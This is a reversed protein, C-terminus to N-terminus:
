CGFDDDGDEKRKLALAMDYILRMDDPSIDRTADFLARLDTNDFIEQAIKATKEDVYYAPKDEILETVPVDFHGAIRQVKDMRPLALERLWSNLTQFPVGIAQAVERQTEGSNSILRIKM